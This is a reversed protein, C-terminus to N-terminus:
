GRDIPANPIERTLDINQLLERIERYPDLGLRPEVDFLMTSRQVPDYAPWFPLDPTNPDGYRAFAIWANSVIQAVKETESGKGVMGPAFDTNAFVLPVDIGHPSRLPGGFIMEPSHWSIEYLYAPAANQAAKREAIETSLLGLPYDSFIREFLDGASYDPYVKRYTKVVKETAGGFLHDLRPVLQEETLQRVQPHGATYLSMETGTVGVMVPVDMSFTPAVPDFPQHPLFKGDVVGAFAGILGAYSEMDLTSVLKKEAALLRDLPMHKLDRWEDQDLGTEKLIFDLSYKAQEETLVRNGAGSQVVARHFLGKAAPTALLMSTKQGGGSQGHIMVCDPDGGFAAINDRVWELAMVIDMVGVNGSSEYEAGAVSALHLYGLVGLRHNITVVVVDGQAALNTGDVTPVSGSGGLWRGGHIWFMVPRKRDDLGPTWVNLVLCDEGYEDGIPRPFVESLKEATAPPFQEIQPCMPGYSAADRVGGWPEPLRPPLFRFEGGTDAGYPIGKFSLIGESSRVGQLKGSATDVIPRQEVMGAMANGKIDFNCISLAAVSTLVSRRSINPM